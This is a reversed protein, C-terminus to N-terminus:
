EKHGEITLAQLHELGKRVLQMILCTYVILYLCHDCYNQCYLLDRPKGYRDGLCPNEFLSYLFFNIFLYMHIGTDWIALKLKKGGIAVYKVKFDVGVLSILSSM